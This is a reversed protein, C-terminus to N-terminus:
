ISRMQNDEPNTEGDENYMITDRRVREMVEMIPEPNPIVPIISTGLSFSSNHDATRISNTAAERITNIITPVRPAAVLAAGGAGLVVGELTDEITIINPGIAPSTPNDQANQIMQSYEYEFAFVPEPALDQQPITQRLGTTVSVQNETFNINVTSSITHEYYYTLRERDIGLREYYTTDGDLPVIRRIDVSGSPSLGVVTNASGTELTGNTRFGFTSGAESISISSLTETAQNITTTITPSGDGVAGACAANVYYSLGPGICIVFDGSNVKIKSQPIAPLIIESVRTIFDDQQEDSLSSFYEYTLMTTGFESILEPYVEILIELYSADEENQTDPTALICRSALYQNIGTRWAANPDFIYAGGNIAGRIQELANRLSARISSFSDFMGATNLNLTDFENEEEYTIQIKREYISRLESAICYDSYFSIKLCPINDPCNNYASLCIDALNSYFQHWYQANARREFIDTGYYDRDPMFSKFTLITDMEEENLLILCTFLQIFDLLLLKSQTYAEGELSDDDVFEQMVSIVAAYKENDSFLKQKATDCLTKMKIHDLYDTSNM